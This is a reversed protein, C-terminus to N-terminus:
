TEGKPQVQKPFTIMFCAGEGLNFATIAGGFSEEIIMRSMYLGIGTGDSKFKTTFYPEFVRGVIDEPIGGCNDVFKVTYADDSEKVNVRLVISEKGAEIGADISNKFLNVMVQGLESEQGHLEIPQSESSEMMYLHANHKKMLSELFGAAGDICQYLSFARAEKNPSFYDSFVTITSTMKEIYQQSKDFNKQLYEADLMGKDFKKKIGILAMSLMSLPQKWQHAINGIMEGMAAMKSQQVMLKQQKMIKEVQDHVQMELEDNMARLEEVHISLQQEAEQLLMESTIDHRIASYGVKEGRADFMPEIVAEVWYVTGEKRLNKIRGKWPRDAKICAWLEEYLGSEMDPHRVINHQHGLLEEESYGSIECFARSASTIVGHLDTTSSIVHKDLLGAFHRNLQENETLKEQLALKAEVSELRLDARRMFVYILLTILLSAAFIYLAVQMIHEREGAVHSAIVRRNTSLQIFLRNKFPTELAERAVVDHMTSTFKPEQFRSWSEEPRTSHLIYGMGDVIQMHYLPNDFLNDLMVSAFYNMVIMGRFTGEHWVPLIVRFTPRFPVEIKGREMNLDLQSFWIREPANLNAVVYGRDSKDQLKERTVRFHEGGARARDFRIMEMGTADLFRLQMLYSEARAFAGILDSLRGTDGTALFHQMDESSRIATIVDGSHRTFQVLIAEQDRIVQPAEKAAEADLRKEYAAQDFNIFLVIISIAALLNILPIFYAPHRLREFLTM